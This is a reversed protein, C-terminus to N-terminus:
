IPATASLTRGCGGAVMGCAHAADFLVDAGVTDAVARIEAVPHPALNLSTGVTILRPRVREALVALADLDASFTVPDSPYEHIDLRYLGAAGADRHTVHGGIDASPVLIADGPDHARTRAGSRGTSEDREIGPQPQDV